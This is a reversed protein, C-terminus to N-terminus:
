HCFQRGLQGWFDPFRGLNTGEAVAREEGEDGELWTNLELLEIEQIDRLRYWVGQWKPDNAIAKLNEGRM